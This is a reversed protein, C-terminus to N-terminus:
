NPWLCSEVIQAIIEEFGLGEALLPQIWLSQFAVPDVQSLEFIQDVAGLEARSIRQRLEERLHEIQEASFSTLEEEKRITKM